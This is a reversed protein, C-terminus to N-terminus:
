EAKGEWEECYDDYATELGYAESDANICGWEGTINNYNNYICTGCYKNNDM